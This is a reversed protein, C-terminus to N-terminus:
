GLLPVTVVDYPLKWAGPLIAPLLEAGFGLAIDWHLLAALEARPISRYASHFAVAYAAESEDNAKQLTPERWGVRIQEVALQCGIRHEPRMYERWTVAEAVGPGVHSSVATTWELNEKLAAETRWQIAGVFLDIKSPYRSYLFGETTSVTDMIRILTAAHYGHRAVELITAAHLEDLETNIPGPPELRMQNARAKPLAVHSTPKLLAQGLATVPQEIVMDRVNPRRHAFLLGLSAVVIYSAQAARTATVSRSPSCWPALFEALDASIAARLKGDFLSAGILEIGVTLVDTPRALLEFQGIATAIDQEGNKPLMSEIPSKLVSKMAGSLRADWLGVGLHSVTRYRDTVARHSLGAAKACSYISLSDWGSNLIVTFAADLIKEDTVRARASRQRVFTRAPVLTEM